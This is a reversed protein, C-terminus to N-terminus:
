RHVIFRMSTHISREGTPTFSTAVTVQLRRSRKLLRKGSRTLRVRIRLRATSAYSRSGSAVKLKRGGAHAFRDPSAYWTMQLRGATAARVHLSYGGHRILAGIRSSKGRPVLQRRLLTKLQSRTLPTGIITNGAADVAVCFGPPCAVGTIAGDAAHDVRSRPWASAGGTPDGSAFLDGSKDAAFCLSTSACWVGSLEPKSVTAYSVSSNDGSHAATPDWTVVDGAGYSDGVCPGVVYGFGVVCTGVCTSGSACSVAHSAESGAGVASDVSWSAATGAGPDVSSVVNGYVDAAVCLSVSPCSLGTFRNSCNDWESYKGCHFGLYGDAHEAIWSGAAQPSNSVLVTGADAAQQTSTIAGADVTAACMSVSPCSVASLPGQAVHAVSWSEAGGAPVNSSVVNGAVDVAVCLSTSPCAVGSFGAAGPISTLHWAGATPTTSTVVNGVKDVAVCLSVSPCAIGTIPNADIRAPSAWVYPAIAQASGTVGFLAVLGVLLALRSSRRVSRDSRM